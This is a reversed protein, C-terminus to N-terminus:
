AVPMRRVSEVALALAPQEGDQTEERVATERGSEPAVRM